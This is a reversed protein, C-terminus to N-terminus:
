CGNSSLCRRYRELAQDRCRAGPQGAVGACAKIAVEYDARCDQRIENCEALAAGALALDLGLGIVLAGTRM